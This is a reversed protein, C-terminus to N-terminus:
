RSKAQLPLGLARMVQDNVIHTSASTDLLLTV